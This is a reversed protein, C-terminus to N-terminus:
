AARTLAPHGDPPAQAELEALLRAIDGALRQATAALRTVELGATRHAGQSEGARCGELALLVDQRVALLAEISRLSAAQAPSPADAVPPNM